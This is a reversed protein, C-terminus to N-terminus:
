WNKAVAAIGSVHPKVHLGFIQTWQM